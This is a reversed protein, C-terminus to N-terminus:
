IVKPDTRCTASSRSLSDGTATPMPARLTPSQSLLTSTLATCALATAIIHYASKM